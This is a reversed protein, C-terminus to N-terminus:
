RAALRFELGGLSIRDRNRVPTEGRIRSGNVFTGNSSDLDRLYFAGADDFSLEAHRRSIRLDDVQADNDPARGISFPSRVVDFAYGRRAGDGTVTLRAVPHALRQIEALSVARTMGGVNQVSSDRVVDAFRSYARVEGPPVSPSERLRVSPRSLSALGKEDAIESLYAQLEYELGSIADGFVGYNDPHLHVEYLEPVTRRGDRVLVNAEMEAALVEAIELPHLRNASLLWVPREVVDKILGEIRSLASM